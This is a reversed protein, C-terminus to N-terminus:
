EQYWEWEHSLGLGGERIFPASNDFASQDETCYLFIYGVGKIINAASVAGAFMGYFM